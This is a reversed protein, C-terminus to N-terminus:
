VLDHCLFSKCIASFQYCVWLSECHYRVRTVIKVSSLCFSRQLREKLDFILL